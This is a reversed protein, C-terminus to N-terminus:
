LEYEEKKYRIVVQIGGEEGTNEEIVIEQFAFGSIPCQKEISKILYENEMVVKLAHPYLGPISNAPCAATPARSSGEYTDRLIQTIIHKCYLLRQAFVILLHIALPDRQEETTPNYDSLIKYIISIATESHKMYLNVLDLYPMYKQHALISEVETKLKELEQIKKKDLDYDRINDIIHRLLIEITPYILEQIKFELLSQEAPHTPDEGRRQLVKIAKKKDITSDDIKSIYVTYSQELATGAVQIIGNPGHALKRMLSLILEVPIMLTLSSTQNDPILKNTINRLIFNLVLSVTEYGSRIVNEFVDEIRRNESYNAADFNLAILLPTVTSELYERDTKQIGTQERAELELNANGPNLTVQIGTSFMFELFAREIIYRFALLIHFYEEESIINGEANQISIHTVNNKPGLYFSIEYNITQIEVKVSIYTQLGEGEPRARKLNTIRYKKLDKQLNRPQETRPIEPM